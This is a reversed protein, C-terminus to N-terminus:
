RDLGEFVDQPHRSRAREREEPTLPQGMFGHDLDTFILSGEDLMVAAVTGMHWCSLWGAPPQIVGFESRCTCSFQAHRQGDALPVMVVTVLRVLEPITDSPVAYCRAAIWGDGDLADGSDLTPTVNLENAKNLANLSMTPWDM